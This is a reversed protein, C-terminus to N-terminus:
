AYKECYYYAIMLSTIKKHINTFCSNNALWISLCLYRTIPDFPKQKQCFVNEYKEIFDIQLNNEKIDVTEVVMQDFHSYGSLGFMLKAYDYERLGFLFTEGFKGRPDIFYLDQDQNVLINGLHTDGHILQYENRNQLLDRLRSHLKAIYHHIDRIPVHNVSHISTYLPDTSWDYENFRDLPKQCVEIYLDRQLKDFSISQRISHITSLYEYIRSLFADQNECTIENTLISSDLFQLVIEDDSHSLLKPMPFSISKQAIYLYFAIENQIKIKGSETKAKKCFTNNQIQINHFQFGYNQTNM